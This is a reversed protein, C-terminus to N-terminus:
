SNINIKYIDEHSIGNQNGSKEIEGIDKVWIDCARTHLLLIIDLFANGNEGLFLSKQAYVHFFNTWCIRLILNLM